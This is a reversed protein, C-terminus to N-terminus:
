RRGCYAHGIRELLDGPLHGCLTSTACNRLFEEETMERELDRDPFGDPDYVQIQYHEAWKNGSQTLM